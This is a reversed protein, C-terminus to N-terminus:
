LSVLSPCEEKDPHEICIIDGQRREDDVYARETEATVSM